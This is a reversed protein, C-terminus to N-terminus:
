TREATSLEALEDVNRKIMQRRADAHWANDPPPQQLEGILNGARNRQEVPLQERVFLSQLMRVPDIM